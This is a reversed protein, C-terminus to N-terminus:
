KALMGLAGAGPAIGNLALPAVKEVVGLVAKSPKLHGIVDNFLNYKKHKPVEVIDGPQLMTDEVQGKAVKDLDYQIKTAQAPDAPSGRYIV